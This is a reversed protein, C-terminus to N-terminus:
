MSDVTERIRRIYDELREIHERLRIIEARSADDYMFEEVEITSFRFGCVLCERRRHIAGDPRLRSDTITTSGDCDPCYKAYTIRKNDSM